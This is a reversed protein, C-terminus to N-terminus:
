LIRACLHRQWSGSEEKKHPVQPQGGQQSALGTSISGKGTQTYVLKCGIRHEWPVAEAIQREFAYPMFFELLLVTVIRMGMVYFLLVLTSYHLSSMRQQTQRLLNARCGFTMCTM